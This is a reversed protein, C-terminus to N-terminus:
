RPHFNANDSDPYGLAYPARRDFLCHYGASLCVVFLLISLRNKM